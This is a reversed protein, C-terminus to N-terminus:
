QSAETISRPSNLLQLALREVAETATTGAATSIPPLPRGPKWLLAQWEHRSPGGGHTVVCPLVELNRGHTVANKLLWEVPREEPDPTVPPTEGVTSCNGGEIEDLVATLERIALPGPELIVGKGRQMDYLIAKLVVRAGSLTENM